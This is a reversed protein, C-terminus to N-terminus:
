NETVRFIPSGTDFPLDSLRMAAYSGSKQSLAKTGHVNFM